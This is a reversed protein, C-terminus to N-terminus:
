IASAAAYKRARMTGAFGGKGETKVTQSDVIGVSPTPKKGAKVRTKSWLVDHIRRWTGDLRWQRYRFHVTGWPPFDHPLHRWACGTRNLYLIANIVERMNVSRPRGGFKPAPILREVLRWQGDTVDTAYPKRDM